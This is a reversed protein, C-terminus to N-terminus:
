RGSLVKRVTALLVDPAVPKLLSACAGLYEATRLFRGEFAGSVAIFLLDPQEEHLIRITEIGEHGPMVLDTIVLNYRQRRALSLGEDGDAATTVEYGAGSLVLQFLNRVQEDDDVVLIAQRQRPTDLAERVKHSLVEASFPKALYATGPLIMGQHAIVGEGYGSMCLVRMDPRLPLLRAAVEMGTMGPMVADTLLLHIPGPHSGAVVLAVEGRAADLMQYGCGTLVKVVFRRVDEQDEVVLITESGSVSAPQLEEEPVSTGPDLLRPLHVKFTSGLGPESYVAIWGGYQRVIGYVTSLGLGTGKGVEKTTFFPEFIHKTTEADMGVGTDSVTLLIYHGPVADSHVAAYGDDVEVNSTEITITGAETMADRANIVLNMLIQHMQGADAMVLGAAPDLRTLLKVHDGVLRELMRYAQTVTENLWLPEPQAAQKRSFALLQGTLDAAREGAQLIEGAMERTPDDPSLQSFMLNSYGNIVTLLNNFDHAIGGALRGVAELKQTQRFQDELNKERTIDQKIGLYNTIAGRADFVPTIVAREWFLRGDKSKNCFEGHWERGATIESWLRRYEEPPTRGSQLIRPNKGLLEERTYGSNAIFAPNVYEINGDTDTIEVSVPSQEVARSLKRLEREERRRETIDRAVGEVAVLAGAEDYIPVDNLEVTVTTGDKRIWLAERPSPLLLEGRVHKGVTPLRDAPAMRLVLRPDAYFEEPTYGTLTLAAPNAYACRPAPVFELRYILDNANEALRRFRNESDRLANERARAESVDRFVLVVGTLAGSADRIPAGSDEVPRRTGDRAELETHNALGIVVGEQLVRGEIGGSWEGTKENFVRFVETCSRGLAETESWGTLREAVANMSRMLGNRDTTIVADGISYLTTRFLEKSAELAAEATKRDTLDRIIEHYYREGEVLIVRASVEVPFLTGDKKLHTTEFTIGQLLAADRTHLSPAEGPARLESVKLRYLEERSRDYLTLARDNAEVIRMEEDALIMADHAYKVVYEYHATLAQRETQAKHLERYLNAKRRQYLTAVAGLTLLISLLAFGLIVAARYKLEAMIEGADVKAVMFWPSGPVPLLESVVRVGRYDIGEFYGARGKAALVAPTQIQSLPIRVGLAADRRFRLRNLIVAYNGERRVLLTEHSKSPVPWSEILPYLFKDPDIRLLIVAITRRQKDQIPAALDLHIEKCDPCRVLDDFVIDRQAATLLVLQKAAADLDHQRPDSGLVISGNVSAILVDLYGYSDRLLKLQDLISDRAPGRGTGNLLLPLTEVLWPDRSLVLADGIREKRWAQIQGVKLKAISSLNEDAKERILRAERQYYGLAATSIVVIALSVLAIWRWRDRIWTTLSM